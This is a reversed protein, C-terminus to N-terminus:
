QTDQTAFDRLHVGIKSELEDISILNESRLQDPRQGHLFGKKKISQLFFDEPQQQSPQLQPKVVRTARRSMNYTQM